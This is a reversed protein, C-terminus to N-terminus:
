RGKKQLYYPVFLVLGQMGGMTNLEEIDDDVLAVTSNDVWQIENANWFGVPLELKWPFVLYFFLIMWLVAIYKHSIHLKKLILRMLFLVAFIIVAQLSMRLVTGFIIQLM